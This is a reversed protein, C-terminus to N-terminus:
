KVRHTRIAAWVEELTDYHRGPRGDRSWPNAAATALASQVDIKGRPIVYCTAGRDVDELRRTCSERWKTVRGLRIGAVEGVRFVSYGGFDEHHVHVVVLDGRRPKPASPKTETKPKAKPAETM